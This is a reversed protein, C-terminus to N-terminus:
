LLVHTGLPYSTGGGPTTQANQMYNMTFFLYITNLAPLLVQSEVWSSASPNKSDEAIIKMFGYSIPWTDSSQLLAVM